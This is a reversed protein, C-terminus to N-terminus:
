KRDRKLRRLASQINDARSAQPNKRQELAILRQAVDKRTLRILENELRVERKGFMKEWITFIRSVLRSQSM